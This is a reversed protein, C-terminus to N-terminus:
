WGWSFGRGLAFGASWEGGGRAAYVRLGQDQEHRTLSLGLGYSPPGENGAIVPLWLDRGGLWKGVAWWDPPITGLRLAVGAGIASNMEPALVKVAWIEVGNFIGPDPDNLVPVSMTKATPGAQAQCTLLVASLVLAIVLLPKLM